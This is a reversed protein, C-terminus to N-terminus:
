EGFGGPSNVGSKYTPNNIGVGAHIRLKKLEEAIDGGADPRWPEQMGNKIGGTADDPWANQAYADSNKGKNKKRLIEDLWNDAGPGHICLPDDKDCTAENLTQIGAMQLNVVASNYEKKDRFKISHNITNEEFDPIDAAIAFIAKKLTAQDPFRIILHEADKEYLKIEEEFDDKSKEYLKLEEHYVPATEKVKEFCLINKQYFWPVYDLGADVMEKRLNTKKEGSNKLLATLDDINVTFQYIVTDYSPITKYYTLDL